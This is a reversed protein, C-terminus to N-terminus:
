SQCFSSFPNISGVKRLPTRSINFTRQLCFIGHRSTSLPQCQPLTRNSFQVRHLCAHKCSISGLRGGSDTNIKARDENRHFETFRRPQDRGQRQARAFPHRLMNHSGAVNGCKHLAKRLETCLRLRSGSLVEAEDDDLFGTEIPEPDMTYQLTFAYLAVDDIRCRNRCGASPPARLCVLDIAFRQDAGQEGVLSALWADTRHDSLGADLVFIAPADTALALDQDDLAGLMDVPDFTQEKRLADSSILRQTAVSTFPELLESRAISANRGVM